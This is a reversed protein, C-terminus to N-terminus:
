RVSIANLEDHWDLIRQSNQMNRMTTIVDYADCAEILAQGFELLENEDLHLLQDRLEKEFKNM